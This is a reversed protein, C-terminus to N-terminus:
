SGNQPGWIYIPTKHVQMTRINTRIRLMLVLTLFLFFYAIEIKSSKQALIGQISYYYKYNERFYSGSFFLFVYVETILNWHFVMHLVPVTNTKSVYIITLFPAQSHEAALSAGYPVFEVPKELFTAGWM